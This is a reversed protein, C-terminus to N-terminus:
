HLVILVFLTGNEESSLLIDFAVDANRSTCRVDTPGSKQRKSTVTSKKVVSFISGDGRQGNETHLQSTIMDYDWGVM